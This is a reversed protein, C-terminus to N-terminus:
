PDSAGIRTVSGACKQKESSVITRVRDMRLCIFENFRGGATRGPTRDEQARCANRDMDRWGTPDEVLRDTWGPESLPANAPSLTQFVCIGAAIFLSVCFYASISTQWPEGIATLIVLASALLAHDILNSRKTTKEPNALLGISITSAFIVSLVLESEKPRDVLLAQGLYGAGISLGALVALTTRLFKM